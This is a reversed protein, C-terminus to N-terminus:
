AETTGSEPPMFSYCEPNHHSDDQKHIAFGDARRYSYFVEGRMSEIVPFLSVRTETEKGPIHILHARGTEDFVQNMSSLYSTGSVKTLHIFHAEGLEAARALTFFLSAGHRCAGGNTMAEKLSQNEERYFSRKTRPLHKSALNRIAAIKDDFPLERLKTAEQYLGRIDECDDIIVGAPRASLLDTPIVEGRGLRKDELYTILSTQTTYKLFLKSPILGSRRIATDIASRTDPSKPASTTTGGFFASMDPEPSSGDKKHFDFDQHARCLADSAIKLIQMETENFEVEESPRALKAILIDFAAQDMVSSTTAAAM